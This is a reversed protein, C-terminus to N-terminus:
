VKKLDAEDGGDGDLDLAFFGAFRSVCEGADVSVVSMGDADDGERDAM